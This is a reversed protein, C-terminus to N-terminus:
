YSFNDFRRIGLEGRYLKKFLLMSLVLQFIHFIVFVRKLYRFPLRYIFFLCHNSLHFNIQYDNKKYLENRETISNYTLSLKWVRTSWHEGNIFVFRVVNFTNRTRFQIIVV